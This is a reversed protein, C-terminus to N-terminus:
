GSPRGAKGKSRMEELMGAAGSEDVVYVVKSIDSPTFM